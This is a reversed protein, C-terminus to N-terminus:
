RTPTKDFWCVKFHEDSIGEDVKGVQEKNNNQINEYNSVLFIDM